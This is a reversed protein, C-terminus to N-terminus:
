SRCRSADFLIDIQLLLSSTCVYPVQTDIAKIRVSYNESTERESHKTWTSNISLWDLDVHNVFTLCETTTNKEGKTANNGPMPDWSKEGTRCSNIYWKSNDIHMRFGHATAAGTYQCRWIDTPLWIQIKNNSSSIGTQIFALLSRSLAAGLVLM